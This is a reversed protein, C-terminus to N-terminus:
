DSDRITDVSVPVARTELRTLDACHPCIIALDTWPTSELRTREMPVEQEESGLMGRRTLALVSALTFVRHYTWTEHLGRHNPM